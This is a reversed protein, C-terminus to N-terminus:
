RERSMRTGLAVGGGGKGGGGGGGVCVCGGRRRGECLVTAENDALDWGLIRLGQV